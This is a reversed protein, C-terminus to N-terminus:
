HKLAKVQSLGYLARDLKCTVGDSIVWMDEKLENLLFAGEVDFSFTIIGLHMAIVLLLGM